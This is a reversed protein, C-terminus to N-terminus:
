LASLNCGIKASTHLRCLLLLLLRADARVRRGRGCCTRARGRGGRMACFRRWIALTGCSRRRRPTRRCTARRRAPAKAAQLSRRRGPAGLRACMAGVAAAAVASKWVVTRWRRMRLVMCAHLRCVLRLLWLAHRLVSLLWLLLLLVPLLRLPGPLHRRMLLLLMLLLLRVLVLMPLHGQWLRGPRSLLLVCTPECGSSTV